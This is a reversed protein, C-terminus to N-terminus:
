IDLVPVLYGTVSIHYFHSIPFPCSFLSRPARNKVPHLAIIPAYSVAGSCYSIFLTLRIESNDCSYIGFNPLKKIDYTETRLLFKQSYVMCAAWM